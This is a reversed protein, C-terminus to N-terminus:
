NVVIKRIINKKDKILQLLYIGPQLNSCDIEFGSEISNINVEIKQGSINYISPTDSFGLEKIYIKDNTPNPFIQVDLNIDNTSVLVGVFYPGFDKSCGNEDTVNITYNGNKLANLNNSEAGEENIAMINYDGTGGVFSISIAGDNVDIATADTIVPVSATIMDPQSLIFTGQFICNNVDTIAVDYTGSELGSITSTTDSTNWLYTIPEHANDIHVAISGDNAGYCSIDNTTYSVISNCDVSNIIIDEKASCDNNDTVIVTYIGPSLATITSDTAGTNWQYTYPETGNQPFASITGDNAGSSSEDTSEIIIEIQIPNEINFSFIESCNNQDTITVIFDGSSLNEIKNHTSEDEWLYILEGTGGEGNVEISGDTGNYCIPMNIISTASITDPNNVTLTFQKSCLNNDTVVISYDGSGFNKITSTTDNTSWLYTYEGTGGSAVIAIEGNTENTCIPTTINNEIIIEEPEEVIFQYEQMCDNEDTITLSYAGAILNTLEAQTDDTNWLYSLQGTGGEALISINGTNDGFCSIDNVTETIIEISPPATITITIQGSCGNNDTVIITYDGATLNNETQNTGNNSWDYTYDTGTGSASITASGNTGDSCQNNVINNVAITVGDSDFLSIQSSESCGNTDTVTVMYTGAPINALTSATSGDDWLYTYNPNGGVAVALIEGQSGGCDPQTIVSTGVVVASTPQSIEIDTSVTCDNNDTVVVTYNGAVVNSITSLTSGNNW